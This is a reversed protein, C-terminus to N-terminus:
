GSAIPTEAVFRDILQALQQPQDEGIFTRSGTVTERRADPFDAALRDALKAPFLKDDEGWAVLVPQTVEGFHRAAELTHENSVGNLVKRTDRRISARYGPTVYSDSIERPLPGSTVLGFALPLRRLPRLRVSHALLAMLPPVRGIWRLFGFPQPPFVEYADCSALVLRAVREPHRTIVMQCVAGGTDNGVLTVDDLSLAALFDAVLRGLGPTSLDADASMPEPHAGLPWDPTICRYRTSLEAVVDRWLDGNVLVGHVFVIAEGSGTERYTVRGQPLDVTRQDGLKESISM